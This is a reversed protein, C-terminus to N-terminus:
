RQQATRVFTHLDACSRHKPFTCTNLSTLCSSAPLASQPKINNPTNTQAAHSLTLTFDFTGSSHSNAFRCLFTISFSLNKNKIEKGKRCEYPLNLISQEKSNVLRPGSWIPATRVLHWFWSYWFDPFTSSNFVYCSPADSWEHWARRRPFRHTCVSRSVRM